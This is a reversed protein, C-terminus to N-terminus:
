VVGIYVKGYKVVLYSNFVRRVSNNKIFFVHEKLLDYTRKFFM